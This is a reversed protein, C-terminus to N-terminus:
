AYKKFTHCFTQFPSNSIQFASMKSLLFPESGSNLGALAPTPRATLPMLEGPLVQVQM